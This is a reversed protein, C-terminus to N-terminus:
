RTDHSKEGGNTDDLFAWVQSEEWRMQRAVLRVMRRQQRELTNVRVQLRDNEAKLLENIKMSETLADLRTNAQAAVRAVGANRRALYINYIVGVLTALASVFITLQAPNM